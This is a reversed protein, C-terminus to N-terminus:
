SSAEVIAGCDRCRGQPITIWEAKPGRRYLRRVVRHTCSASM